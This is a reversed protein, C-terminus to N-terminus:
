RRPATFLSALRFACPAVCTTATLTPERPWATAYAALSSPSRAVTTIGTAVGDGRRAAISRKPALTTTCPEDSASAASKAFPTAAPAPVVTWTCVSSM